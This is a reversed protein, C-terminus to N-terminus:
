QKRTATHPEDQVFRSSITIYHRSLADLTLLLWLGDGRDGCDNKGGDGSSSAGAGLVATMVRPVGGMGGSNSDGGAGGCIM